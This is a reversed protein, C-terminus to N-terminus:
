LIKARPVEKVENSHICEYATSKLFFPSLFWAKGRDAEPNYFGKAFPVYSHDHYLCEKRPFFTPVAQSQLKGNPEFCSAEFHDGCVFDLPLHDLKLSFRM